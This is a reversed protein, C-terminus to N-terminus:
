FFNNIKGTYPPLLCARAHRDCLDLEPLGDPKTNLSGDQQDEKGKKKKTFFETM